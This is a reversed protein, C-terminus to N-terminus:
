TENFASMRTRKLVFDEPAITIGAVTEAGWTDEVVSDIERISQFIPANQGIGPAWKKVVFQNHFVPIDLDHAKNILSAINQKKAHEVAGSKESKGGISMNDNQLDIVLLATKDKTLM